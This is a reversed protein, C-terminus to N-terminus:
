QIAQILDGQLHQSNHNTFLWGEKASYIDYGLEILLLDLKNQAHALDRDCVAAIVKSSNILLSNVPGPVIAILTWQLEATEEYSLEIKM